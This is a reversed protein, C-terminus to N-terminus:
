ENAPPTEDAFPLSLSLCTRLLDDFPVNINSQVYGGMYAAKYAATNEMVKDAADGM